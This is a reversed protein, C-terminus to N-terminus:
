DKKMLERIAKDLATYNNGGNYKSRNILGRITSSNIGQTKLLEIKTANM